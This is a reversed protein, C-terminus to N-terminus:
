TKEKGRAMVIKGTRVIEIIGYGLLMDLAADLKETSGTLQIILSNQALDVTQGKFHSIVQLLEGRNEDKM